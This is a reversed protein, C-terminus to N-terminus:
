RNFTITFDLCTSELELASCQRLFEYTRTDTLEQLDNFTIPENYLCRIFPTIFEIGIIHKNAISNALLAGFVKAYRLRDRILMFENHFIYKEDKQLVVQFFRYKQDKM